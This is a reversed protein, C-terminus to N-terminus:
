ASPCSTKESSESRMQSSLRGAGRPLYSISFFSVRQTQVDRVMIYLQRVWLRTMNRFKSRSSGDMFLSKMKIAIAASAALEAPQRQPQNL